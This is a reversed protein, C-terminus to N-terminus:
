NHYVSDIKRIAGEQNQMVNQQSYNYLTFFHACNQATMLLPQHHRHTHISRKAQNLIPIELTGTLLPVGSMLEARSPVNILNKTTHGLISMM